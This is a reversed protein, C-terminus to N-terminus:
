NCNILIRACAHLHRYVRAGNKIHMHAHGHGDIDRCICISFVFTFTRVENLLMVAAMLRGMSEPTTSEPAKLQLAHTEYNIVLQGMHRAQVRVYICTHSRM